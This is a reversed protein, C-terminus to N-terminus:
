RVSLCRVSNIVKAFEDHEEGYPYAVDFKVLSAPFAQTLKNFTLSDLPTCGPCNIALAAPLLLSLSFLVSLRSM